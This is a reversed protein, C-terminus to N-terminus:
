KRFPTGAKAPVVVISAQLLQRGLWEGANELLLSLLFVGVAVLTALAGGKWGRSRVFYVPLAIAAAALVGGNMLPGARYGRSRKDVHYWWFVLAIALLTEAMEFRGFDEVQGTVLMEVLPGAFSM